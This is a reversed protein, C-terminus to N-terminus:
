REAVIRHWQGDSVDEDVVAVGDEGGLNYRLTPKGGVIEIAM